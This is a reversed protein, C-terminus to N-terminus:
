EKKEECVEAPVDPSPAPAPVEDPKKDESPSEVEEETPEPEEKTVVPIIKKVVRRPKVTEPSPEEKESESVSLDEEEEPEPDIADSELLDYIGGIDEYIADLMAIVYKEFKPNVTEEEGSDSDTDHVEVPVGVVLNKMLKIHKQTKEHQSINKLLFTSDCFNCKIKVKDKEVIRPNDIFTFINRGNKKGYKSAEEEMM